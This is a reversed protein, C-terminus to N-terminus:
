GHWRRTLEAAVEQPDALLNCDRLQYTLGGDEAGVVLCGYGKCSEAEPCPRPFVVLENVLGGYRLLRVRGAELDSKLGTAATRDVLGVLLHTVPHNRVTVLLRNERQEIGVVDRHNVTLPPECDVESNRGGMVWMAGAPQQLLPHATAAEVLKLPSGDQKLPLSVFRASPGAQYDAPWSEGPEVVQMAVVPEKLHVDRRGPAILKRALRNVREASCSKELLLAACHRDDALLIAHHHTDLRSCVTPNVFEVTVPAFGARLILNLRTAKAVPQNLRYHKM